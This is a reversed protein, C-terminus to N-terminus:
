RAAPSRRLLCRRLATYTHRQPVPTASTPQHAYGAASALLRRVAGPLGEPTTAATTPSCRCVCRPAPHFKKM